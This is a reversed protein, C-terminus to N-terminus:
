DVSTCNVIRNYLRDAAHRRRNTGRPVLRNRKIGQETALPRCMARNDLRENRKMVTGYLSLGTM